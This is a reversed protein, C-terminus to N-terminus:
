QDEVIVLEHKLWAPIKELREETIGPTKRPDQVSIIGDKIYALVNGDDDTVRVETHYRYKKDKATPNGLTIFAGKKAKEADASTRVIGLKTYKKAM